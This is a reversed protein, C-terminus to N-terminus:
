GQLTSPFCYYNHASNTTSLTSPTNLVRPPPTNRNTRVLVPIYAASYIICLLALFVQEAKHFNILAM